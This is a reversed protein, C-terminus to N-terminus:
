VTPNFLASLGCTRFATGQQGVDIAELLSMAARLGTRVLETSTSGRLLVAMTVGNFDLMRIDAPSIIIGGPQGFVAVRDSPTLGGGYPESVYLLTTVQNDVTFEWKRRSHSTPWFLRIGRQNKSYHRVLTEIADRSACIMAM